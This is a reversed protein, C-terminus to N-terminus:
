WTGSDGGGGFDGGDGSFDSSSSSYDSSSSDSYDSSEPLANLASWSSSYDIIPTDLKKNARKNWLYVIFGIIGIVGISVLVSM